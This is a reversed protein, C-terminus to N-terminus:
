GKLGSLVVGEIFYKQLTAFVIVVPLTAVTSVAMIYTWYPARLPQQFVTMGVPLTFLDGDTVVILPWLFNNWSGLFTLIALSALAPKLLPLVIQLFIGPESCGDIRAADLLEDPLTLSAQRMLFVGFASIAGPIILGAYSNTWGFNYVVVYLPILLVQFPIMMTSLVLLFCIRRGPFSFKAFGYGALASFFLTTLVVVVAVVMSNFFYLGFSAVQFAEPYNTPKFQEPIWHVPVALVEEEAKFSTSVMYYVPICFALLGALTVLYLLVRGLIRTINARPNHYPQYGQKDRLAMPDSVAPQM